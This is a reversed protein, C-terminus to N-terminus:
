RLSENKLFNRISSIIVAKTNKSIPNNKITRGHEFPGESIQIRSIKCFHNKAGFIVNGVIQNKEKLMYIKAPHFFGQCFFQMLFIFIKPSPLIFTVM